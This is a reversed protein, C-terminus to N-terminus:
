YKMVPCGLRNNKGTRYIIGISYNLYSDKKAPNAAESFGDLYDTTTIRYATEANVGWNPTIFYKIGAGIPIVPIVRPLKHASDAALGTWVESTEPDFYTTNINSYDRSTKILSFGAGAFLYPSFGKDAYNKRTVNWVLQASLETVPSTFNFNRQKRYEPNDYLGDNGKLKGILLNARVSFSQSLLRSAHLGFSFKQTKFSGLKEPTLDGQYVLFGLNAGFEYKPNDIQAYVTVSAYVTIFAILAVKTTLYKM